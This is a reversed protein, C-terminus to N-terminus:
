GRVKEFSIVKCTESDVFVPYEFDWDLEGFGAILEDAINTSYSPTFGAEFLAYGIFLRDEFCLNSHNKM